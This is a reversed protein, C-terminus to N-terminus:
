HLLSGGVADRPPNLHVSVIRHASKIDIKALDAGRCIQVIASAADDVSVYSLSSLDPAVVDNMSHGKPSSLDLILRWDWSRKPIVRFHSIQVTPLSHPNFPGLIRGEAEKALYDCIIEPHQWASRMNEKVKKCHHSQYNYGIRFGERIGNILHVVFRKDPHDRLCKEWDEWLLPLSNSGLSSSVQMPPVNDLDLLERMYPYDVLSLGSRM